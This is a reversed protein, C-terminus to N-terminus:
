FRNQVEQEFNKRQRGASAIGFVAAMGALGVAAYNLKSSHIVSAARVTDEGLMEAVRSGARTTSDTAGAVASSGPMPSSSISASAQNMQELRRVFSPTYNNPQTQIKRAVPQYMSDSYDMGQLMPPLGRGINVFRTDNSVFPDLAQHSMKFFREDEYMQSVQRSKIKRQEKLIKAEEQYALMREKYNKQVSWNGTPSSPMADYPLNVNIRGLLNSRGEAVSVKTLADPSSAIGLSDVELNAIAQKVASARQNSGAPLGTDEMGQLMPIKRGGSKAYFPVGMGTGIDDALGRMFLKEHEKLNTRLYEKHKARAIKKAEARQSKNAPRFKKPNTKVDKLKVSSGIDLREATNEDALFASWRAARPDYMNVELDLTDEILSRALARQPDAARDRAIKNQLDDLVGPSNFPRRKAKKLEELNRMLRRLRNQESRDGAANAEDLRDSLNRTLHLRTDRQVMQTTVPEFPEANKPGGEGLQSLSNLVRSQRRAKTNTKKGPPNNPGAKPIKVNGKRKIAPKDNTLSLPAAPGETGTVKLQPNQNLFDDFNMWAMFFEM